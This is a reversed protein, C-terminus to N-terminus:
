NSFTKSVAPRAYYHWVLDGGATLITGVHMSCAPIDWGTGVCHIEVEERPAAPDVELWIQRRGHQEALCLARWGLPVSLLNIPDPLPYKFVKM